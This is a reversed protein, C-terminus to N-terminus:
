RDNEDEIVETEGIDVRGRALNEMQWTEYEVLRRMDWKEPDYYEAGNRSLGNGEIVQLMGLMAPAGLRSGTSQRRKRDMQLQARPIAVDDGYEPLLDQEYIERARRQQEADLLAFLEDAAEVLSQYGREGSLELWAWATVPDFETGEGKLHMVGLNYQGFKDAYRAAREYFHIASYHRGMSYLRAARSMLWNSPMHEQYDFMASGPRDPKPPNLEQATVHLAALLLVALGILHFRNFGFM